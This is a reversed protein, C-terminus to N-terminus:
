CRQRRLSRSQWIVCPRRRYDCYADSIACSTSFFGRSVQAGDKSAEWRKRDEKGPKRDGVQRETENLIGGYPEAEEEKEEESEETEVVAEGVSDGATSGGWVKGPGWDQEKPEKPTRIRIRPAAPTGDGNLRLTLKFPKSPDPEEGGNWEEDPARAKGKERRRRERQEDTMDGEDDEIV